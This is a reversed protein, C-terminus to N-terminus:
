IMLKYTAKYTLIGIEEHIFVCVFRFEDIGQYKVNENFYM